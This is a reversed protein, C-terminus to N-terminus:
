KTLTSSNLFRYSVLDAIICVAPFRVTASVSIFPEPCHVLKEDRDPLSLMTDRISSERICWVRRPGSASTFCTRRALAELTINSIM